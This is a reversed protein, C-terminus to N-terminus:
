YVESVPVLSIDLTEEAGAVKCHQTSVIRYLKGGYKIVQTDAEKDILTKLCANQKKLEINESFIEYYQDQRHIDEDMKKLLHEELEKRAKDREAIIDEYVEKSLKITKGFM